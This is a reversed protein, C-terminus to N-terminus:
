DPNDTKDDSAFSARSSVKPDPFSFLQEFIRDFECKGNEDITPALADLTRVSGGIEGIWNCFSLALSPKDNGTLHEPYYDEIEGRSLVFIYQERLTTLLSEKLRAVEGDEALRLVELRADNKQQAFFSKVAEDLDAFTIEDRSFAESAEQAARWLARAEGSRKLNSLESSTLETGAEALSLVADVRKILGDRLAVAQADANLKGFGDTIVDLDALVAVSVDFRAFFERYRAISGKGNIKALAVPHRTFSWQEDLATGLERIVLFDSDGEVLLVRDSFFAANNNEHCIIQFQDKVSMDSVNVHYAYTFPKASLLTDRRKVLKVFTQTARPGFFTPSHTSVMVFNHQAFLTLAEFLQQQAKPYLYLEPEEFLLMYPRTQRAAPSGSFAGEKKLEVYARLIAFTLSRKLGDGKSDFNGEVGDDAIIRASNLVTSLEPPPIELRVSVRPFSEQVFKGITQEIRRVEPLRHDSQEGSQDSSVNLIRNLEDFMRGFSDLKSSIEDLLIKILKGFSSSQSTKVDDGLDKVAPIYICEPLLPLISKDIGTPLVVDAPSKSAEPMATVYTAICKRVAAQTLRTGDPLDSYIESYHEAVIDRLIADSKGKVLEDIHADHFREDTAIKSVLRLQGKGPKEYRRCLILRGNDINAIIKTRHDQELRSLDSDDIEDLTVEIRVPNKLDFFDSDRIEGGSEFLALAQLVSSKGVSNEGIVCGFHSMPIVVDRLGRYNEVHLQAIKM